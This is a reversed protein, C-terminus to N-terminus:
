LYMYTHIEIVKMHKITLLQLDFPKLIKFYDHMPYSMVSVQLSTKFCFLLSFRVNLTDKYIYRKIFWQVFGLYARVEIIHDRVVFM